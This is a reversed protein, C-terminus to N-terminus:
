LSIFLGVISVAIAIVAAVLALTAIMNATKAHRAAERAAEAAAWAADKNSRAIELQESQDLALRNAEEKKLWEQVLPKLHTAYGGRMLAERVRTEGAAEMQRILEYRSEVM